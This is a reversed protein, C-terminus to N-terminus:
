GTDKVQTAECSLWDDQPSSPKASKDKFLGGKHAKLKDPRGNFANNSPEDLANWRGLV